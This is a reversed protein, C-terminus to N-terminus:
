RGTQELPLREVRLERLRPIARRPLRIDGDANQYCGPSPSRLDVERVQLVGPVGQVLAAADGAGVGNDELWARVRRELEGELDEEGGRLSVSLNVDVYVPPAAKVQTGIPRVSDLQRQVAELFRRDPM